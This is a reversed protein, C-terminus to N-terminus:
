RKERRKGLHKACNILKVSHGTKGIEVINLATNEQRLKDYDARPTKTFHSLLTVILIGHSVILVTKDPYKRLVSNLFAMARKQVEKGSEGSKPKFLYRGRKDMAAILEERPKGEFVGFDQERLKKNFGIKLGHFSNIIEATEKARMYDSSLIVDIPENKLRQALKMAQAAGTKNLGPNTLQGMIIHKKNCDTEGHRVLLLKMDLM